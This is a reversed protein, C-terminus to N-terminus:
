SWRHLIRSRFPPSVGHQERKLFLTLAQNFIRQNEHEDGNENDDGNTQEAGGDVGNEAGNVFTQLEPGRDTESIRLM